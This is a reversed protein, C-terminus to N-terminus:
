DGASRQRAQRAQRAQERPDLYVKARAEESLPSNALWAEAAAEDRRRWRRAITIWALERQSEDQLYLVWETAVDPDRDTVASIYMGVPGQLVRSRRQEETTGEMWALAGARDALVFERYASRAAIWTEQEDPRTMLWDMADAGSHRAWSQALDTPLWEANTTGCVRDCWATAVGPESRAVEAAVARYLSSKFKPDGSLSEAWRIAPEVGDRAVHLEALTKLGRVREDTPGLDRVFDDLYQSDEAEFWGEIFGTLLSPQQSAMRGVDYVELVAEPDQRAWDRVASQVARDRVAGTERRLAWRVAGEPDHRSWAEIVLARELPGVPQGRDKLAAKLEEVDEPKTARLRAVLLEVRDLGDRITVIERLPMASARKEGSAVRDSADDGCGALAYLLISAAIGIWVRNHMADIYSMM